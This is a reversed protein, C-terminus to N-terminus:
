RFFTIGMLIKSSNLPENPSATNANSVHHYRYEYNLATDKAIFYQIGTGGQYSFNLRSGMTPLGLDVYLIGGGAFIYPVFDRLSTFKWSGFTYGGTMIRGGHDVALHVPLEFFQEHRGQYWGEGLNGSLFYGYRLITDFTQVQTRTAGFGRHTIGYGTLYTFEHNAERFFSNDAAMISLPSCSVAVVAILALLRPARLRMMLMSDTWNHAFKYFTASVMREERERGTNVRINPRFDRRKGSL